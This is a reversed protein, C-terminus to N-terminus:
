YHALNTSVLKNIKNTFPKLTRVGTHAGPAIQRSKKVQHLGCGKKWTPCNAPIKKSPAVRLGKEL